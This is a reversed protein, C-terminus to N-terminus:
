VGPILTSVAVRFTCGTGLTSFAIQIGHITTIPFTPCCFTYIITASLESNNYCFVLGANFRAEFIQREVSNGSLVESTNRLGM